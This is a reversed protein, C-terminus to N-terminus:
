ADEGEGDNPDANESEDAVTGEADLAKKANRVDTVGIAGDANTGEIKTLDVGLDGALKEAADTAKYGVADSDRDDLVAQVDSVKITAGDAYGEIATVDVGEAQSLEYADDDVSLPIMGTVYALAAPGEVEDGAEVDKGLLVVKVPPGEYRFKLLTPEDAM